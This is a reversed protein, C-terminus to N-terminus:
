SSPLYGGSTMQVELLFCGIVMKALESQSGYSAVDLVILQNQPPTLIVPLTRVLFLICQITEKSIFLM